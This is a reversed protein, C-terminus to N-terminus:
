SEKAKIDKKERERGYTGREVKHSKERDAMHRKRDKTDRKGREREGKHRKEGEEM